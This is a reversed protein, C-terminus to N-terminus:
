WDLMAEENFAYADNHPDWRTPTIFYVDLSEKLQDELFIRYDRYKKEIMSGEWDLMAEENFAYSDNPPDWRTPTIFYVDLSEKLQDELFIRYDRYKKEIMSGEWDLM